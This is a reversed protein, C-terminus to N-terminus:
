TPFLSFLTFSMTYVVCVSVGIGKGEPVFDGLIEQSSVLKREGFDFVCACSASTILPFISSFNFACVYLIHVGM